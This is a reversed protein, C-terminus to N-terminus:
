RNIVRLSRRPHLLVGWYSPEFGNMMLDEDSGAPPGDGYVPFGASDERRHGVPVTSGSFRSSAETSAKGGSHRGPLFSARKWANALIGHPQQDTSHYAPNQANYVALQKRYVLACFALYLAILFLFGAVAGAIAAGVNTGGNNGPAQGPPAIGTETIVAGNPGTVTYTIPKGTALPGSTATQVPATVTAGGTESGGIVDYVAKPVQYGYSGQLGSDKSAGRQSLQQSFPNDKSSGSVSNYTTQWALSSLNFVYVGPSECSIEQGIYGGVVVMQGDWVACSHGARPYPVSQKSMDVQIWTFSPVSLIWMDDYQTQGAYPQLNQGGFM